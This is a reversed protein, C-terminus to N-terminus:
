PMGILELRTAVQSAVQSPDLPLDLEINIALVLYLRSALRALDAGERTDRGRNGWHTLWNRSDVVQSAFERVDLNWADFITCARKTLWRIRARQSQSNAHSLAGKFVERQQDDPLVDLMAEVAKAADETSLPPADHLTRHYGEAFAALNLLQSEPRLWPDTQTSFFLPWVPGLENRLAYWAGIVNVGDPLSGPNLLLPLRGRPVLAPDHNPRRIVKFERRHQWHSSPTDRAGLLELSTVYSPRGTAFAILDRLPEVAADVASMPVEEDFALQAHTRVAIRTEDRSWKTQIGAAFLQLSGWVMEVTQHDVCEHDASAALLPEGFGGGRLLDSLGSLGVRVMTGTVEQPSTVHTGQVLTEFVLDATRINSPTITPPPSREGSLLSFPWGDLSEGHLVEVPHAEMASGPFPSEFLHVAIGRAPAYDIWGFVKSEHGPVWFRGERRWSEEVASV